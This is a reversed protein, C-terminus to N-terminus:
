DGSETVKSSPMLLTILLTSVLETMKVETSGLSSNASMVLSSRGLEVESRDMEDLSSNRSKVLSSVGFGSGLAVSKVLSIKEVETKSREM